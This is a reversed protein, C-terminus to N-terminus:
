STVIRVFSPTRNAEVDGFISKSLWAAVALMSSLSMSSRVLFVYSAGKGTFLPLLVRQASLFM